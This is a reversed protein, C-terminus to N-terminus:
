NHNARSVNCVKCYEVWEAEHPQAESVNQKIEARNLTKASELKLEADGEINRALYLREYDVGELKEPAIGGELLYTKHVTLLKSAFGQSIGLGEPSEVFEGFSTFRERWLENEKIEHLNVMAQVMSARVAEFIAITNDLLNM